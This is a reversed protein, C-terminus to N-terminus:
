GDFHTAPLAGSVRQAIEAAIVRLKVNRANSARQLIAFAEDQSCRNQAMVIGVAVDIHTRSEMARSRNDAEESYHAMRLALQLGKSAQRAYSEAFAVEESRFSSPRYSYLNMAAHAGAGITFPASLISRLGYGSVAESYEPWRSESAFDEVVITRQEKAATLCPGEKFAYQLEDMSKATESNYAVTAARRRRLLTIGCLVTEEHGSVSRASLVALENLFEQMDTTSLVLDQLEELLSREGTGATQATLRGPADFEEDPEFSVLEGM